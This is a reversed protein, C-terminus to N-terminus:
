GMPPDNRCGPLGERVQRAAWSGQGSVTVRLAQTANYTPGLIDGPARVGRDHFCIDITEPTTAIIEFAMEWGGDAQKLTAGNARQEVTAFGYDAFSAKGPLRRPGVSNPFSALDLREVIQQAQGGAEDAACASAAALLAALAISRSKAM